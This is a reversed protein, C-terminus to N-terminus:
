AVTIAEESRRWAEVDGDVGQQARKRGLILAYALFLFWVTFGIGVRVEVPLTSPTVFGEILGAVLLTPVLGLVILVVQRGRHAFSGLRTRSGPSVWSWFLSLGAGGAVFVATLELLGHPLILGWFLAAKGYYIMLAANIALNVMNQFLVYIVGIGTVGFAVEQTAVWANNTWVLAAFDSHAHESYYSEFDHNVLQQIMEPSGINEHIGPNQIIWWAMLFTFVYSVVMTTIWWWRQRYLVAPYSGTFFELFKRATGRYSRGMRRRARALLASLSMVLTPDPANSRIMSLHTSTRDYLDVLQRAQEASLAREETLAELTKWTPQNAAVFADLDM